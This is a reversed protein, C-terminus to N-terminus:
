SEIKGTYGLSTKFRYAPGLLEFAAASTFIKQCSAPALGLESNKNFVHKGTKSEVVYLSLSAHKLSSDNELKNVAEGLRSSVGQASVYINIFFISLAILRYM